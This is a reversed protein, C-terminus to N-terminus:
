NKAEELEISFEGFSAVTFHDELTHFTKLVKLSELDLIFTKLNSISLLIQTQDSTLRFNVFSAAQYVFSEETEVIAFNTSRIINGPEIRYRTVQYTTDFKKKRMERRVREDEVISLDLHTRLCTFFTKEEQPHRM